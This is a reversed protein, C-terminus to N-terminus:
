SCRRERENDWAACGKRYGQPCGYRNAREGFVRCRRDRGDSPLELVPLEREVTAELVGTTQGVGGRAAVAAALVYDAYQMPLEPLPSAKEAEFAAYLVSLEEFLVGRSWGDSVIHHMTLLLEHEQAEMRVLTARILPGKALDFPSLTEQDALEQARETRQGLPLVSLDVLPLRFAAPAAIVQVPNDDVWAFTTRLVEHRRVIEGLSKELADANLTGALRVVTSINYACNGLQFQETFWLGEQAYSLPLQEPRPQGVLAPRLAPSGRLRKALEAVTPAEFLTRIAVEVGLTTRVRSVLRTALLSHGGLAFFNEKIGVRELKLVEAFLGCLVEEAPTRPGRYDESHREPAPLARRDLKGSATLPLAELLVFATPVMYDPLRQGLERRLAAEEAVKGAAAVVYAVLHKGGLGDERAIVAAQAVAPQASLAAEIEGLEIRFGRIKVQQDVRGLFELTGDARWRALDGTRYMRTSPERAHPDAVFREATLGPRNLYGRALGAGAVYLEGIVGIPMPELGADLVYCISNTIPRGIPV